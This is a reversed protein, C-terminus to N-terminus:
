PGLLSSGLDGIGVLKIVGSDSALSNNGLLAVAEVQIQQSEYALCFHDLASPNHHWEYSPYLEDITVTLWWEARAHGDLRHPFPPGNYDPQHPFGKAGAPQLTIRGVYQVLLTGPGEQQM